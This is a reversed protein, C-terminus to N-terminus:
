CPRSGAARQKVMRYFEEPEKGLSMEEMPCMTRGDDRTIYPVVRDFHHSIGYKELTCRALESGLPGAVEGAHALVSLLAAANGCVRDYIVCGGASAEPSELYELLPLLGEKQSRFVINGGRYVRLTDRSELFDRYDERGM